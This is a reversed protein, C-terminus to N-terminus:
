TLCQNLALSLFSSKPGAHDSEGAWIRQGLERRECRARVERDM